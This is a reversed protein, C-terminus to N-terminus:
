TELRCPKDICPKTEQVELVSGKQRMYKTLLKPTKYFYINSSGTAFANLAKSTWVDARADDATNIFATKTRLYRADLQASRSLTADLSDAIGGLFIHGQQSRVNIHRSNVWSLKFTGPGYYDLNSLGAIGELSIDAAREAHVNLLHTNMGKVSIPTPGIVTLKQLGIHPGSLNVATGSNVLLNLYPTNMNTATLSGPASMMISSVAGGNIYVTVAPVEKVPVTRMSRIVLTDHRVEAAINGVANEAGAVQLTPTNGAQQTFVVHVPGTIALKSFNALNQQTRLLPAPATNAATRQWLTCASLSLSSLLAICTLTKLKM